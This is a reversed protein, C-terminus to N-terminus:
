VDVRYHLPLLPLNIRKTWTRIRAPYSLKFGRLRTSHNDGTRSDIATRDYECRGLVAGGRGYHSATRGGVASLKDLEAPEAPGCGPTVRWQTSGSGRGAATPDGDM